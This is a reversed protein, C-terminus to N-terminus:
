MHVRGESATTSVESPKMKTPSPTRSARSGFNRHAAHRARVRRPAPAALTHVLCHLVTRGHFQPRVAGFRRQQLDVVQLHLEHGPVPDGPRHVPDAVADGRPLGQRHQALGTRALRHGRLRDHADQVGRGAPDAAPPHEVPTLVQEGHRLLLAPLDAAPLDRHDELVRQRREVRDERHAPLEALDEPHVLAHRLLVGEGLGDLQHVPHPDRGGLLPDGVVRM